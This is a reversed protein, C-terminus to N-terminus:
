RRDFRSVEMTCINVPPSKLAGISTQLVTTEPVARV